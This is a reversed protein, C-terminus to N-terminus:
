AGGFKRNIKAMLRSVKFYLRSLRSLIWASEMERLIRNEHELYSIRTRMQLGMAIKSVELDRTRLNELREEGSLDDRWQHINL